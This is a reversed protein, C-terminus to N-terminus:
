RRKIILAGMGVIWIYSFFFIWLYLISISEKGLFTFVALAVFLTALFIYSVYAFFRFVNHIIREDAEPLNDKKRKQKVVEIVTLIITAVM